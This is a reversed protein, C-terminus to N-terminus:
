EDLEESIWENLRTAYFGGHTHSDMIDDIILLDPRVGLVKNKKEEMVKFEKLLNDIFDFM